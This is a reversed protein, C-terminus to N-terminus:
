PLYRYTGLYTKLTGIHVSTKLAPSGRPTFFFIIDRIKKYTDVVTCRQM